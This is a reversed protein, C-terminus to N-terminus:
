RCQADSEKEQRPAIPELSTIPLRFHFECGKGHASEFRLSGGAAEALGKSISLGLGAGGTTGSAKTTFFPEFVVSRVEEPIGAGRDIVRLELECETVTVAIEIKENPPSAEIANLLLNYLVQRLTNEPLGTVVPSRSPHWQISVAHERCAPELMALLDDLVKAVDVRTPIEVAPRHLDLMHRVIGAVRDIEKEIRALFKHSRNERGVSERVICFGNKIGALPNNIEHAVRAAMRGTAALKEVATRQRESERLAQEARLRAIASGIQGAIMELTQRAFIPVDDASRSAVNLCGIAQGKHLMPLVAAAHLGEGTRPGELPVGLKTHHNYVPKGAAILRANGSGAKYHSIAQVFEPSLGRHVALKVAGSKEDVLYIGGCDMESAGLATELCLQLGQDLDHTASLATSLEHQRRIVNEARRRDAVETQLNENARRLKATRQRVLEELRERHAKLESEMRKRDTIDVVVETVQQVRGQSDTIPSTAILFPRKRGDPMVMSFEGTAAEGTRITKLALCETDPNEFRFYECCESGIIQDGAGLWERILPNAYIIRSHRDFLLLGCRASKAVDELRQREVATKEEARKRDAIGRSIRRSAVAIGLLGLLWLVTHGAAQTLNNKRAVAELPAMPVSVSVGGHVDGVQYGQDGHCKLCNRQTLMPQMLRLYPQGDLTTLESWEPDGQEFAELAQREWDGPGNESRLPKLSTVHARDRHLPPHQENMQRILHAPNMLTLRKGSPTTIDRDPLHALYSSPPTQEDIPVYVGGHSTAWSRLDQDKQFHGRAEAAAITRVGQTERLINWGLSGGAVLTWLVALVRAYRRLQLKERADGLGERGNNEGGAVTDEPLEQCGILSNAGANNTDEGCESLDSSVIEGLGCM